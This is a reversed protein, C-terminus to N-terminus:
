QGSTVARLEAFSARVVQPLDNGVPDKIWTEFAVRFVAMGAEATLRAAPDPVGRGRLADTLGAALFSLKALERERLEPNAEVVAQRQAVLERREQMHGGAAAVAEAVAEIPPVAPPADTVAGVIFDQLMQSGSFLVERKDAFHRFFTRETVGARKAIEAATTQDFGREAFLELAAQGLRGRADPEWRGM